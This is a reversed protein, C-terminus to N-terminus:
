KAFSLPAFRGNLPVHIYINSGRRVWEAPEGEASTDARDTYQLYQRHPIPELWRKNDEDYIDEIYITDDPVAVYAVGDSTDKDSVTEIQPFRFNYEQGLLKRGKTLERYGLNIFVGYLNEADVTAAEIDPRQGLQFKLYRKFDDFGWDGM